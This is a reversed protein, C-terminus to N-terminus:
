TFFPHTHQVYGFAHQCANVFTLFPIHYYLTILHYSMAHDTLHYLCLCVGFSNQFRLVHWSDNQPLWAFLLQLQRRGNYDLSHGLLVVHEAISTFFRPAVNSPVIYVSLAPIGITTRSKIKGMNLSKLLGSSKCLHKCPFVWFLLSHRLPTM